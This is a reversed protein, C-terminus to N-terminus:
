LTKYKSKRPWNVQALSYFRALGPTVTLWQLDRCSYEVTFTYATCVVTRHTFNESRFLFTPLPSVKVSTTTCERARLESAPATCLDCYGASRFQM